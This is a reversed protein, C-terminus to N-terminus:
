PFLTMVENRSEAFNRQGDDPVYFSSIKRGTYRSILGVRAFRGVYERLTFLGGGDERTVDCRRFRMPQLKMKEM